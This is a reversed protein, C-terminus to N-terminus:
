LLARRQAVIKEHQALLFGLYSRILNCFLNAEVSDISLGLKLDIGHRIGGGTPSSLYGHLSTTWDLVRDLTTGPKAKRLDRMIQNFYKGQITDDGLDIGKFATVVSELLWLMEQVAERGRGEALLDESRRLSQQYIEIASEELSPPRKPIEVQGQSGRPVLNPPQILYGISNKECIYNIMALDPVFLEHDNKRLSECADYFGELFLPANEAAGTMYSWLDTDTWSENSSWVHPQGVVTCFYGKFHELIDQRSGQTATKDILARFQAIADQPIAENIWESNQPSKFRWAGPFKLM